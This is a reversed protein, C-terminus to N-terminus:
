ANLKYETINYILLHPVHWGWRPNEILTYEYEEHVIHNHIKYGVKVSYFM